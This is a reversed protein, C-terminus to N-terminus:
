GSNSATNTKTDLSDTSDEAKAFMNFVDCTSVEDVNCKTEEVDEEDEKDEKPKSNHNYTSHRHYWNPIGDYAKKLEDESMKAEKQQILDPVTRLLQYDATSLISRIDPHAHLSRFLIKFLHPRLSRFARTSPYREFLSLCERAVAL